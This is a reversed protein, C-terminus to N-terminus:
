QRAGGAIGARLTSAQVIRLSMVCSLVRAEEPGETAAVQSCCLGLGWAMWMAMYRKHTQRPMTSRSIMM